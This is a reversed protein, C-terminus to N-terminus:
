ESDILSKIWDLAHSSIPAALQQNFRVSVHMGGALLLLGGIYLTDGDVIRAPGDFVIAADASAGSLLLLGSAVSAVAASLPRTPAQSGGRQAHCRCSEVPHYNFM